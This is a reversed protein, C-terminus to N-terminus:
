LGGRNNITIEMGESLLVNDGYYLTGRFGKNDFIVTPRDLESYGAIRTLNTYSMRGGQIQYDQGNVTIRM